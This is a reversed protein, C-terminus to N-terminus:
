KFRVQWILSAHSNLFLDDVGVFAHENITSQPLYGSDATAAIMVKYVFETCYLENNTSLDFRADFTPRLKRWKLIHEPISQLVSDEPTYRVIAAATSYLPSCFHKASDRRICSQRDGEGGICHYVFPYGAERVVIGCHSYTRDRRNLRALLTSFTGKSMRLVVDGTRLMSIATDTEDKNREAAGAAAPPAKKEHQQKNWLYLKAAVVMLVAALILMTLMAALARM